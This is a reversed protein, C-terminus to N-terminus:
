RTAVRDVQALVDMLNSLNEDKERGHKSNEASGSLYQKRQREREERQEAPIDNFKWQSRSARMESTIASSMGMPAPPKSPSGEPVMGGGGSATLAGQSPWRRLPESADGPRGNLPALRRASPSNELGGGLPKRAGDSPLPPPAGFGFPDSAAGPGSSRDRDGRDRKRRDRGDRGPSADTLRQSRDHVEPSASGHKSRVQPSSDPSYSPPMDPGRPLGPPGSRGGGPSARPVGGRPSRDRLTGSHDRTMHRGDPKPSGDRNEGRGRSAARIASGAVVRGEMVEQEAANAGLVVQKPNPAERLADMLLKRQSPDLEGLCTRVTDQSLQNCTGLVAVLQPRLVDGGDEAKVGSAAERELQVSVAGLLLRVVDAKACLRLGHENLLTHLLMVPRKLRDAKAIASIVMKTVAECGVKPHKALQQVLKDSAIAIKVDAVATRDLLIPFTKSLGMNLDLGSLQPALKDVAMQCLELACLFVYRDASVPSGLAQQMAKCIGVFAEDVKTDSRRASEEPDRCSAKGLARLAGIVAKEDGKVPSRLVGLIEAPCCAWSILAQPVEWPPPPPMTTTSSTAGGAGVNPSQEPLRLLKRVDRIAKAPLDSSIAAAWAERSPLQAEVDGTGLLHAKCILAYLRASEHRVDPDSHKLGDVLRSWEGPNHSGPQLVIKRPYEKVLTRLTQIRCLWGAIAGKSKQLAAAQSATMEAEADKGPMLHRLILTAIAVPTVIDGVPPRLLRFIAQKTNDRVVEKADGMRACLQRLLPALHAVLLRGDVTGCFAPVTAYVARCAEAYVMVNQDGLGEHVTRMAGDLLEGFESALAERAKAEEIRPGISASLHYLAAVRCQWHHSYFCRTWGDGFLAMLPAVFDLAIDDLAEALPLAERLAREGEALEPIEDGGPCATQVDFFAIGDADGGDGTPNNSQHTASLDQTNPAVNEKEDVSNDSEEDMDRQRGLGTKGRAATGLRGTSLRGSANLGTSIRGSANLGTDIRAGTSLRGSTSTGLRGTGNLSKMGTGLRGSANLTAATGIRSATNLRSGTTLRTSSTGPRKGTRQEQMSELQAIARDAILAATDGEERLGQLLDTADRRVDGSRHEAAKMCYTALANWTDPTWNTTAGRQQAQQMLQKILVLRPGISRDCDRGGGGAANGSAAAQQGVSSWASGSSTCQVILESLACSHLAALEMATEVAKVRVKQSTDVLRTALPPLLPELFLPAIYLPVHGCSLRLLGCAAVFVATVPDSLLGGLADQLTSLRHGRLVYQSLLPGSGTQEKGDEKAMDEVVQVGAGFSAFESALAAIAEHRKKWEKSAFAAALVEAAADDPRAVQVENSAKGRKPSVAGAAAAAVATSTSMKVKGGHRGAELHAWVQPTLESACVFQEARPDESVVISKPMADEECPGAVILTIGVGAQGHSSIAREAAKRAKSPLLAWTREEMGGSLAMLQALADGAAARVKSHESAASRLLLPMVIARRFLGAQQLGFASLWRALLRLNAALCKSAADKKDKRETPSPASKLREDIRLLLPLAVEDLPVRGHLVCSCLAEVAAQHPSTATTSGGGADTQNLLLMITDPRGAEGANTPSASAEGGTPQAAPQGRLLATFEETDLVDMRADSLLEEFVSLAAVFVKPFKDKAASAILCSVSSVLDGPSGVCESFHAALYSFAEWRIRWQENRLADHVMAGCFLDLSSGDPRRQQWEEKFAQLPVTEETPEETEPGGIPPLASAMPQRRKPAEQNAGPASAAERLREHLQTHGAREAIAEPTNGDADELNTIAGRSLLVAAAEDNGVAACLHLSTWGLAGPAANVDAGHELMATLIDNHALTSCIQLCTRAEELCARAAGAEREEEGEEPEASPKRPTDAQAADGGSPSTPAQQRVTSGRGALNPDADAELLSKVLEAEGMLCAQYLPSRGEEDLVNVRAGAAVVARVGEPKGGLVAHFLAGRGACDVTGLCSKGGDLIKRAVDVNGSSLAQMVATSGAEDTLTANAKANLLMSVGDIHGRKAVLMLPTTSHETQMDVDIKRNILFEQLNLDGRLAAFHLAGVGRNDQASIDAKADLLLQLMDESGGSFLCSLFSSLGMGDRRDPNAEAKLLTMAMAGDGKRCAVQLATENRANPIDVPVKGVSLLMKVLMQNGSQAGHHLVSDGYADFLAEECDALGAVGSAHAVLFAQVTNEDGARCAAFLDEPTLAEAAAVAAAAEAEARAREAVANAAAQAKAEAEVTDLGPSRRGGESTPSAKSPSGAPSAAGARASASPSAKPPTPPLGRGGPAGPSGAAPLPVGSSSSAAAAAEPKSPAREGDAVEFAEPDAVDDGGSGPRSGPRPRRANRESQPKKPKSERVPEDEDDDDDEEKAAKVAVTAATVQPIGEGKAKADQAAKKSAGSGM